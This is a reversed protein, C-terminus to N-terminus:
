IVMTCPGISLILAILNLRFLILLFDQWLGAHPALAIIMRAWGRFFRRGIRDMMRLSLRDLNTGLLKADM